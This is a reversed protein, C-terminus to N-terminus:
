YGEGTGNCVDCETNDVLGTGKCAKCVEPVVGKTDHIHGKRRWTTDKETELNKKEVM